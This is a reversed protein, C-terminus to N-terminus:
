TKFHGKGVPEEDSKMSIWIAIAIPLLLRLRVFQGEFGTRVGFRSGLFNLIDEPLAYLFLGVLFGRWAPGAAMIYGILLCAIGLQPDAIDPSISARHSCILVQAIGSISFLFMGVMFLTLTPRRGNQRALLPDSLSYTIGRGAPSLQMWASFLFAFMMLFCTSWVTESHSLQVAAFRLTTDTGSVEKLGLLEFSCFVIALDTVLSFRPNAFRVFSVYMLFFTTLLVILGFSFVAPTALAAYAVGAGFAPFAATAVGCCRVACYSISSFILVSLISILRSESLRLTPWLFVLGCSLTALALLLFVSRRYHPSAFDRLWINPLSLSIVNVPRVKTIAAIIFVLLSLASAITEPWYIYIIAEMAFMGFTFVVAHVPRGYAAITAVASIAMYKSTLSFNGHNVKISVMGLLVLLGLQFGLGFLLEWRLPRPLSISESQMARRYALAHRSYRSSRILVACATIILLSCVSQSITDWGSLGLHEFLTQPILSSVSKPISNGGGISICIHSALGLFLYLTPHATFVKTRFCLLSATGAITAALIFLTWLGGWNGFPVNIGVLSASTWAGLCAWGAAPLSLLRHERYLICLVSAIAGCYLANLLTEIIADQQM